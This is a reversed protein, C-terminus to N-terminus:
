VARSRLSERASPAPSGSAGALLPALWQGTHSGPTAAIEEPRGM